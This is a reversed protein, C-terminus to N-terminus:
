LPYEGVIEDYPNVTAGGFMTPERRRQIDHTTYQLPRPLHSHSHKNVLLPLPKRMVVGATAAIVFRM